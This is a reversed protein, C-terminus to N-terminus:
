MEEKLTTIEAVSETGSTIKLQLVQIQVAHLFISLNWKISQLDSQLCMIEKGKFYWQLREIVRAFGKADRLANLENLFLQYRRTIRKAHKLLTRGLKLDDRHLETKTLGSLARHTTLMIQRMMTIEAIHANIQKPANSVTKVIDALSKTIKCLGVTVPIIGLTLSVPDAM